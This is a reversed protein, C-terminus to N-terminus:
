PGTPARRAARFHAAPCGSCGPRQLTGVIRPEPGTRDLRAELSLPQDCSAVPHGGAGAIREDEIEVALVTGAKDALAMQARLGSQSVKLTPQKEFVIGHCADAAEQRSADDLQWEGGISRPPTISKGVHLIGLLGLFPPGVLCLYIVTTKLLHRM